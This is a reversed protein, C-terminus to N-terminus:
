AKSIKARDREQQKKDRWGDRWGSQWAQIWTLAERATGSPSIARHRLPADKPGAGGKEIEVVWCQGDGWSLYFNVGHDRNVDRIHDHVDKRSVRERKLKM